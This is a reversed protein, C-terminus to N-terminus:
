ITATERERQVSRAGRTWPMHILPLTFTQVKNFVSVMKAAHVYHWSAHDATEHFAVTARMGEHKTTIM